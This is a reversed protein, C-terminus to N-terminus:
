RQCRRCEIRVVQGVARQANKILDAANVQGVAPAEPEATPQEQAYVGSTTLVMALIILRIRNYMTRDAKNAVVPIM